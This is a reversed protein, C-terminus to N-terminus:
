ESLLRIDTIKRPMWIQMQGEGRKAWSFFPIAVDNKIITKVSLGNESVTVVPATSSIAGFQMENGIKESFM